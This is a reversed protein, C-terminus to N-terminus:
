DRPTVARGLDTLLAALADPGDLAYDAQALLAPPAEPSRVAVSVGVFGPRTGRDHMAAFAALDGYDDGAFVGVRVPQEDLLTRVATGKDVPVPVRLEAALRGPFLALGHEAALAALEDPTPAADPARRWHVTFAPLGKREVRLRPWRHSAADAAAAVADLFPTARPDLVAAGNVVRELGYQGVLTVGSVPVRAQLFSSPRGSVVAVLRCSGALARLATIAAPVARARAPDDVIPALTGDFDSIVAAASPDDVIPALVPPITM